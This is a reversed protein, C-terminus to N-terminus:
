HWADRKRAAPHESRCAVLSTKFLVKADTLNPGEPARSVERSLLDGTTALATLIAPEEARRM